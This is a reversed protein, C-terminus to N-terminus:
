YRSIPWRRRRRLRPNDAAYQDVLVAPQGRVHCTPQVLVRSLGRAMHAGSTLWGVHARRGKRACSGPPRASGSGGACRVISLARRALVHLRKLHPTQTTASDDPLTQWDPGTV